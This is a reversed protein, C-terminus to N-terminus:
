PKPRFLFVILAPGLIAALVAFVIFRPSDYFDPAILHVLGLLGGLVFWWVAGMLWYRSGGFKRGAM